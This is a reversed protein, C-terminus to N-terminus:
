KADRYDSTRYGADGGDPRWEHKAVLGPPVLEFGDFFRLIEARSRPRLHASAHEYISVAEDAAGQEVFDGSLHVMALYSGPALGDRLAAVIGYPDDRDPIFHM